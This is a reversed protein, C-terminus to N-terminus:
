KSGAARATQDEQLKGSSISRRIVPQFNCPELVSFGATGYDNRFVAGSVRIAIQVAAIGYRSIFDPIQLQTFYM